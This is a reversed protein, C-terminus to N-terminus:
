VSANLLVLLVGFAVLQHVPREFRRAPSAACFDLVALM